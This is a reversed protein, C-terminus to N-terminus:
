RDGPHHRLWEIRCTHWVAAALAGFALLGTAISVIIVIDRM